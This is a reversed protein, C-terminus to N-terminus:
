VADLAAAGTKLAQLGAGYGAATSFGSLAQQLGQDQQLQLQAIQAYLQDSLGAANLAASTYGLTTGALQQAASLGTQTEQMAMTAAAEQARTQAASIQQALSTNKAPDASEGRTAAQSKLTTIEDALAQDVLGQQGAALVGTQEAPILAGAASRVLQQTPDNAPSAPNTPNFQKLLNTLDGANGQMAALNPITSSGTLQSLGAAGLGLAPTILGKNSKLFDAFGGLDESGFLTSPAKGAVAGISGTEQPTPTDIRVGPFDNQYLDAGYPVSQDGGGGGGGLDSDMPQSIQTFDGGTLDGQATPASFDGMDPLGTALDPGGAGVGAGGTPAASFDPGAGGAGAAGGFDGFDVAPPEAGGLGAVGAGIGAGGISGSNGDPGISGGGENAGISGTSSLQPPVDPSSGGGGINLASSGGGAGLGGTGATGTGTDPTTSGIQSMDVAPSAGSTGVGTDIGGGTGPTATPNITNGSLSGALGQAGSSGGSPAPAGGGLATGPATNIGELGGSTAPIPVPPPGAPVQVAAADAASPTGIDAAAPAAPATYYPNDITTNITNNVPDPTVMVPNQFDDTGVQVPAGQTVQTYTENFKPDGKYLQEILSTDVPNVDANITNTAANFLEQGTNAYAGGPGLLLTDAFGVDPGLYRGPAYGAAEILNTPDATVVGDVGPVANVDGVGLAGLVGQAADIFGQGINGQDFAQGAQLVVGPLQLGGAIGLAQSLGPGLLGSLGGAEGAAGSAGAAGGLGEAVGTAGLTEAAGLGGAGEALGVEASATLLEETAFLAATEPM